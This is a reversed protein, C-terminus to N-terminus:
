EIELAAKVEDVMKLTSNLGGPAIYWIDASLYIIRDNKYANTQKVLENDLTQEASSTGGTVVTGRDIVFLYDPNKELLYEFTVVQGHTSVELGKDVATIGFEKHLIGFRSGEGYASVQGENVLTILANVNKSLALSKLADIKASIGTLKEEVLNEKDFIEGLLKMNNTFSELYNTQDIAMYLTPAIKNLEDYAAQQRGSIIILDPQLEYLAEFNPEKIGGANKVSADTTYHALYSPLTATPIAAVPVELEDLADLIGIDFVVVKEPNKNLVTTGLDHKISLEGNRDKEEGGQLLLYGAISLVAIILVIISAKKNM